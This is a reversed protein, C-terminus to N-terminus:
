SVQTSRRSPSSMLLKKQTHPTPPPLPHHQAGARLYAFMVLSLCGVVFYLLEKAYRGNFAPDFHKLILTNGVSAAACLSNTAVGLWPNLALYIVAMGVVLAMVLCTYTLWADRQRPPPPSYATTPFTLLLSLEHEMQSAQFIALLELMNLDYSGESHFFVAISDSFFVM